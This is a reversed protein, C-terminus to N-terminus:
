TGAPIQPGCGIQYYLVGAPIAQSPDAVMDFGVEVMATSSDLIVEFSTCRTTAGCCEGQRSHTPSTWQGAPLGTLNVFFYPVTPDCTPVQALISNSIILFFGALLIIKNTTKNKILTINKM